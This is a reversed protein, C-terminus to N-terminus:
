AAVTGAATIGDVKACSRIDKLKLGCYWSIRFRYANKTELQGLDEVKLGTKGQVGCCADSGFSLIFITTDSGTGTTYAGSAALETNKIKDDTFIPIGDFELAPVGWKTMMPALKDGISDRYVSIGRRMAKSMFMANVDNRWSEPILDIAERLKAISLVSGTGSGAHVTNYTTSTMLDQLGEFSNADVATDGYYFTDLFKYQVAKTKNALVTGKLDLKNSRTELVFNDIDADGGLIKITVTAQTLSPTSEVWTDGVAYFAAGSDTTITDYTDSNGLITEFPLKQLIKSDKVLRDIVTRSLIDTTSYLEGETLTLAM